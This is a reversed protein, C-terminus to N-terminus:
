QTSNDLLRKNTESTTGTKLCVGGSSPRTSREISLAKM